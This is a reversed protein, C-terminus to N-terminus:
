DGLRALLRQRRRDWRRDLRRNVRREVPNLSRRRARRLTQRGDRARVEEFEERTQNPAAVWAAHDAVQTEQRQRWVHRVIDTAILDRANADGVYRPEHEFYGSAAAAADLKTRLQNECARLHKFGIVCGCRRRTVMGM